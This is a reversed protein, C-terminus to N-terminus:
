SSSRHYQLLHKESHSRSDFTGACFLIETYRLWKTRLYRACSISIKFTLAQLCISLVTTFMVYVTTFMVYVRLWCRYDISLVTTFMVYVRLWCRYDIHRNRQQM